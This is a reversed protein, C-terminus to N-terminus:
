KAQIDLLASWMRDAVKIVDANARFAQKAGIQQVVEQAPDVTDDVGIRSVRQASADLAREAAMMGYRATSIADM